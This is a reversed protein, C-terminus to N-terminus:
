GRGPEAANRELPPRDVDGVHEGIGLELTRRQLLDAPM